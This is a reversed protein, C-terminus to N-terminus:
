WMRNLKTIWTNYGKAVVSRFAAAFAGMVGCCRNTKSMSVMGSVSRARGEVETVTHRFFCVYFLLVNCQFKYYAINYICFRGHGIKM